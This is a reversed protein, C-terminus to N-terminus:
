VQALTLEAAPAFAESTGYQLLTDLLTMAEAREPYGDLLKLTTLLFTPGIIGGWVTVTHRSHIHGEYNPLKPLM